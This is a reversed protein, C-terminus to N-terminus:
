RRRAREKAPLMLDGRLARRHRRPLSREADIAAKRFPLFFVLWRLGRPLGFVFRWRRPLNERMLQKAQVARAVDRRRRRRSM